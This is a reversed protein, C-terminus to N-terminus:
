GDDEAVPLQALVQFGRGNPGARFEGGYLAVREGIGILGHGGNAPEAGLQQPRQGGPDVCEIELSGPRYRIWLTATSAGSHRVVNTLAEQAIRYASLEETPPLRRPQGEVCVEVRVGAAAIQSVLAPLDVLGPAPGLEDVPPEDPQRLVAVIRGLEDLSRRSITEIIALAESAQDPKSASIMRAVGSRVAIVSMAHAVVDHLERAIRAREEVATRRAREREREAAREALNLAYSHRARSNEGALWGVLVSGSALTGALIVPQSAQGDLAALGGAAMPAICAVVVWSPLASLSTAALSYMAFGAAVLTPLRAGFGVLVTEAAVVVGLVAKPHRWRAPLPLAAGGVALYGLLTFAQGHPGNAQLDRHAAPVLPVALLAALVADLAMRQRDTLRSALRRVPLGDNVLRVTGRPPADWM